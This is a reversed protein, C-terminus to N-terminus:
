QKFEYFDARNFIRLDARLGFFDRKFHSDAAFNALSQHLRYQNREFKVKQM